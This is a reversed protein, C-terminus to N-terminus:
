YGEFCRFYEDFYPLTLYVKCYTLEPYPPYVGSYPIPRCHLTPLSLQNINIMLIHQFLHNVTLILKLTILTHMLKLHTVKLVVFSEVSNLHTLKPTLYTVKLTLHIRM